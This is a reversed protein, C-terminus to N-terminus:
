YYDQYISVNYILDTITEYKLETVKDFVAFSKNEPINIIDVYDLDKANEVVVGSPTLQTPNILSISTPAGVEYKTVKTGTPVL